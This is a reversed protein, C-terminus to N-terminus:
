RIRRPNQTQWWKVFQNYFNVYRDRGDPNMCPDLIVVANKLWEQARENVPNALEYLTLMSAETSNAENGHVNYSLWVIAKRDASPRGDVLGTRRLNDTRIQDIKEFNDPSTVVAYLLPRQEYTEGYRTIGVNPMVDAVHQFYEVVRYHRTFREGLEYGLFEKPSLLKKPQAHAPTLVLTLAFLTLTRIM